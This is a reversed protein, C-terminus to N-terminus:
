IQLLVFKGSAGYPFFRVQPAPPNASSNRHSKSTFNGILRGRRAAMHFVDSVAGAPGGVGSGWNHYETIVRAAMSHPPPTAPGVLYIYLVYSEFFAWFRNMSKLVRFPRDPAQFVRQFPACRRASIPTLSSVYGKAPVGGSPTPPEFLCFIDFKFYYLNEQHGM